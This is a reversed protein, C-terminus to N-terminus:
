IEIGLKEAVERATLGEQKAKALVARMTVPHLLQEKQKELQRIEAQKKAIKGEIIVIREKTTKRGPM